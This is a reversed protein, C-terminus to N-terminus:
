RKGNLRELEQVARTLLRYIGGLQESIGWLLAVLLVAVVAIGIEFSSMRVLGKAKHARQVARM